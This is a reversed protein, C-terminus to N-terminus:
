IGNFFGSFTLKERCADSCLGPALDKHKGTCFVPCVFKCFLKDGVPYLSRGYVAVLALSGTGLGKGIEFVSAYPGKHCGIDCCPSKVNVHKGM